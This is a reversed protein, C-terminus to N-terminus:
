KDGGFLTGKTYENLEDRFHYPHEIIDSVIYVLSNNTEEVQSMMDEFVFNVFSDNESNPIIKNLDRKISDIKAQALQQAVDLAISKMKDRIEELLADYDDNRLQEDDLLRWAKIKEELDKFEYLSERIVRRIKENM